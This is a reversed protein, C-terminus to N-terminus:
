RVGIAAARILGSRRTLVTVIRDAEGLKQTRLVVGEDRYLTVRENQRM